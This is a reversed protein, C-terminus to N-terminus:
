VIKMLKAGTYAKQSGVSLGRPFLVKLLKGSVLKKFEKYSDSDRFSKDKTHSFKHLFPEASTQLTAHKSLKQMARHQEAKTAPMEVSSPSAYGPQMNASNIQLHDLEMEVQAFHAERLKGSADKNRLDQVTTFDLSIEVEVGSKKSKLKFKHRDGIIKFAESLSYTGVYGQSDLESWGRNYLSNEGGLFRKIDSLKARPKLDLGYEVRQCVRHDDRTATGKINLRGTKAENSRIRLAGQRATIEYSDSDFYVDIMPDTKPFGRPDKRVRGRADKVYHRTIPEIEWDPGLVKRAAKADGVLTYLLRVAKELEREGTTGRGGRPNAKLESELRTTVAGGKELVNKWKSELAPTYRVAADLPLSQKGKRATPKLAGARVAVASSGGLPTPAAFFGGRNFGGWQHGTAWLAGVALPTGPEIKLQPAEKALFKNIQGYDIEYTREGKYGTKNLVEKDALTALSIITEKGGDNVRAQLVLTIKDGPNSHYSHVTVLAGKASPKADVKIHGRGTRGGAAVRDPSPSNTKGAPPRLNFADFTVALGMAKPKLAAKHAASPPSPTVATTRSTRTASRTARTRATRPAASAAHSSTSARSATIRTPM